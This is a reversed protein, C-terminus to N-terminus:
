NTTIDPRWKQLLRTILTHLLRGTLLMLMSDNCENLYDGSQISKNFNISL